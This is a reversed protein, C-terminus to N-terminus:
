RKLQPLQPPGTTALYQARIKAQLSADSSLGASAGAKKNKRPVDTTM